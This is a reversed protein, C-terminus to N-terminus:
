SSTSMFISKLIKATGAVQISVGDSTDSKLEHYYWGPDLDGQSSSSFSVRCLGADGDLVSIGSSLDLTAIRTSGQNAAIGWEISSGTFSGISVAAGYPDTIIADIILTEDLRFEINLKTAM